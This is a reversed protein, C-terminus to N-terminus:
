VQQGNSCLEGFDGRIARTVLSKVAILRDFKELLSHLNALLGVPQDLGIADDENVVIHGM